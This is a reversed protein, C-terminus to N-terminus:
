RDAAPPPPTDQPAPGDPATATAPPTTAANIASRLRFAWVVVVIGFVLAWIGAIWLLTVLGASPQVVLLIGFVISLIGAALVWGWTSSGNRRMTLSETIEAIGAVISWFAILFLIVLVTAGPWAFALVGAIVSIVGQVVHWGWHNDESRHRIGAVVATIGDLVAYVGFVLVLALLATGPTFLLILGFLIAFIGRLLVLWWVGRIASEVGSTPPTAATM